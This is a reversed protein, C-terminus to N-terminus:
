QPLCKSNGGTERKENLECDPAGIDGEIEWENKAAVRKINQIEVVCLGRRVTGAIEITGVHLGTM